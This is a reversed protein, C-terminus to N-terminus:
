LLRFWLGGEAKMQEWTFDSVLQGKASILYSAHFGFM